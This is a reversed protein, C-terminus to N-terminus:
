GIALPVATAKTGITPINSILSDTELIAKIPTTTTNKPMNVKPFTVFIFDIFILSKNMDNIVPIVTVRYVITSLYATEKIFGIKTKEIEEKKPPKKDIAKM